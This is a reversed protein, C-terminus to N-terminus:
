KKPIDNNGIKAPYKASAPIGKMSNMDVVLVRKGNNVVQRVMGTGPLFWTESRINEVGKPRAVLFNATVQFVSKYSTLDTKLSIPGTLKCNVTASGAGGASVLKGKWSWAAGSIAPLPLVPLPPDYRFTGGPGIGVCDIANPEVMYVEQQVPSGDRLWKYVFGGAPMDAPIAAYRVLKYTQGNATGVLNWMLGPAHPYFNDADKLAAIEAKEQASIFESPSSLSKKQVVIPQPSTLGSKRFGCGYSLILIMFCPAIKITYALTRRM